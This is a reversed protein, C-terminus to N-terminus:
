RSLLSWLTVYQEFKAMKELFEKRYKVVDPREHGDYYLGKKSCQCSYGLKRLWNIATRETISNGKGSLGLAPAIHKNVHKALECTSITGLDQAALYQRVGILVAENDLLTHQGHQFTAKSPPLCHHRLLYLENRRIQRAFAKGKGMRRAIALSANATPKKCSPNKQYRERLVVYESVATLKM